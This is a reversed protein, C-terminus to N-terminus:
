GRELVFESQHDSTERVENADVVAAASQTQMALEYAEARVKPDRTLPLALRVALHWSLAEAFTPTFNTTDIDSSTFHLFAPSLDCYIARGGADYPHDAHVLAGALSPRARREPQIWRIKLCDVPRVYAHSWEGARDNAIEALSQLRGAFRWPYASLLVDRVHKYYQRCARAEASPEELDTINDKGINTLALNCISVVSSM